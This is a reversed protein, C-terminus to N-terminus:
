QVKRHRQVFRELDAPEEYPQEGTGCKVRVERDNRLTLCLDPVEVALVGSSAVYFYGSAVPADTTEAFFSYIAGPPLPPAAQPPSPSVQTYGAPVRGYELRLGSVHTGQFYGKSAKVKWAVSAVDPHPYAIREGPRPAYVTFIALRGSGSLAFSPGPGVSVETPREWNCSPALALASALLLLLAHRFRGRRDTMIRM